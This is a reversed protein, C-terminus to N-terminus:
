LNAFMKQLTPYYINETKYAICDSDYISLEAM